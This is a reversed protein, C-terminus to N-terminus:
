SINNLWIILSEFCIFFKINNCELFVLTKLIILSIQLSIVLIFYVLDGMKTISAIALTRKDYSFNNYLFGMLSFFDSLFTTKGLSFIHQQYPM